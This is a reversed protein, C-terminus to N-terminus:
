RSFVDVRKPQTSLNFTRKRYCWRLLLPAVQVEPMTSYGLSITRALLAIQEESLEKSLTSPDFPHRAQKM